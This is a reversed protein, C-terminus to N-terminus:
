ARKRPWVFLGLCLIVAVVAGTGPVLGSMGSEHIWLAHKRRKALLDSHVPHYALALSYLSIAHEVSMKLAAWDAYHGLLEGVLPEPPGVFALREFLQYQIAQITEHEGHKGWTSPMRPVADGGFDIELLRHSKLWDPDRALERKAELIRVHLWESGDHSEPNRRMGEAIWHHAKELDGSLEYATGLNAAVIYEGPHSKEVAELIALGRKTEGRHLLTAAYDSRLKFDADAAPEPGPDVRLAEDHIPNSTLEKAFDKAPFRGEELEIKEGKINKGYYWLCASASASLSLLFVPVLIPARM